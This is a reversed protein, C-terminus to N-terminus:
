IPESNVSPKPKTESAKLSTEKEGNQTAPHM